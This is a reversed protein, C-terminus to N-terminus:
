NERTPQRLFTSARGPPGIGGKKSGSADESKSAFLYIQLANEGISEQVTELDYKLPRLQYHKGRFQHKDQLLHV